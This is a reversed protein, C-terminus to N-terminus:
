SGKAPLRPHEGPGPAVYGKVDAPWPGGCGAEAARLTGTAAALTRGRARRPWRWEAGPM